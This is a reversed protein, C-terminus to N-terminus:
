YLRLHLYYRLQLLHAGWHSMFYLEFRWAAHAAGVNEWDWLVENFDRAIDALDNYPDALMVTADVGEFPDCCAYLDLGPFASRAKEYLLKYENYDPEPRDPADGDCVPEPLDHYAAVLRDLVTTLKILRDVADDPPKDLLALYDNIAQLM